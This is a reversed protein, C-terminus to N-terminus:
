LTACFFLRKKFYHNVSAKFAVPSTIQGFCYLGWYLAGIRLVEAKSMLKSAKTEFTVDSGFTQFLIYINKANKIGIFDLTLMYSNWIYCKVKVTKSVIDWSYESDDTWIFM